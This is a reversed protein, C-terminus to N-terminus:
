VLKTYRPMGDPLATEDLYDHLHVLTRGPDLFIV